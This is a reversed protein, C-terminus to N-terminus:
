TDKKWHHGLPIDNTCQNQNRVENNCLVCKGFSIQVVSQCPNSVTTKAQAKSLTELKEQELLLFKEGQQIFSLSLLEKPSKRENKDEHLMSQLFELIDDNCNYGLSQQLKRGDTYVTVDSFLLM